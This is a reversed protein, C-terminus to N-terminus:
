LDSQSLHDRGYTLQLRSDNSTTYPFSNQFRKEDLYDEFPECLLQIEGAFL